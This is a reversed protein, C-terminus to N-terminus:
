KLMYNLIQNLKENTPMENTGWLSQDWGRGIIFSHKNKSQYKELRFLLEEYSHCGTLDLGLKKKVLSMIHGHADTFGPYIDKGGADIEEESTYKNLIQQNPGVEVIKGDRIAIAEEIEDNDNLTHIRANHIVIDVSKGKYCSSFSLLISALLLFPLSRSKSKNM